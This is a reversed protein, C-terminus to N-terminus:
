GGGLFEIIEIEDVEPGIEWITDNTKPNVIILGGAIANKMINTAEELTVERVERDTVGSEYVKITRSM